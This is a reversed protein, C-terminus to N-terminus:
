GSIPENTDMPRMLSWLADLLIPKDPSLERIWEQWARYAPETISSMSARQQHSIRGRYHPKWIRERWTETDHSRLAEMIVRDLPCHLWPRLRIATEASPRSAWDVYFKLFVNITKQGQGYALQSQRNTRLAQVVSGVWVHHRHDFEERSGIAELECRVTWLLELVKEQSKEELTRGQGRVFALSGLGRVIALDEKTKLELLLESTTKSQPMAAM